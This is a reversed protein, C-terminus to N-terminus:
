YNRNEIKGSAGTVYVPLEMLASHGIETIEFEPVPIGNKFMVHPRYLKYIAHLGRQPPIDVVVATGFSGDFVQVVDGILPSEGKKRIRTQDM